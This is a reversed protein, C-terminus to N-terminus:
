GACGAVALMAGTQALVPLRLTGSVLLVGILAALYGLSGWGAIHVPVQHAVAMEDLDGPRELDERRFM